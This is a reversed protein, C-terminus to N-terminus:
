PSMRGQTSLWEIIEQAVADLDGDSSDFSVKALREYIPQRKNVLQKWSDLGDKLLPRKNNNIRHMVAEESVTMLIVPLKMLEQQTNEDLVAGGGLSVVAHQQLAKHVVKREIDRFADEGQSSFIDAIPGHEKEIVKDTDIVSVGLGRGLRKAVRSKGSAPAGILVAVPKTSM